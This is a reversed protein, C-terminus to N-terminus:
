PKVLSKNHLGSAGIRQRYEDKSGSKCAGYYGFGRSSDTNVWCQGSPAAAYANVAVPQQVYAPAPPPSYIPAPQAYVYTPAPEVYTSAPVYVYGPEYAFGPEYAYPGYGYYAPEYGYPRYYAPQAASTAAAGVLAGVGFGIAAATNRGHAAESPVATSTLLAGALAAAALIKMQM